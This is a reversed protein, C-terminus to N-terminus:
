TILNGETFTLYGSTSRKTTQHGAWNTDIYGEINSVGNKSYLLDKGPMGKLYRLIRYVADMHDESPAHMFQSVIDVVYTINPRTHTLYILRGVLIQYWGMDIPIQNLLIGLRHNMQIPTEIPKCALMGTESLLDLVYKHQSLSIGQKSRAVEIGLFYKLQGLDKIKFEASLYERLTRMEELDDGTLIMNDVYVILTMVKGDKHKVFLTHDVHSQQYSTAKMALTFRRFWARPSQKLGYLARKLKCVKGKHESSQRIGPLLEIYM